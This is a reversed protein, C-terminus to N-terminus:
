GALKAKWEPEEGYGYARMLTGCHAELCRARETDWDQWLPASGHSANRREGRRAPDFNVRYRRNEHCAAFQLLDQLHAPDSATFVDEFRWIRMNESAAAADTIRQNIMWWDWCHKEFRSARDWRAALDSQGFDAPSLRRQGFLGTLDRGDHQGGHNLWSTVWDRPDRVLGIIKCRPYVDAVVDALGYWQSYSEVILSGPADRYYTDRHRRIAAAAAPRGIQGTQWRRAINRIGTRGAIRGLVMHYLGFTRIARWLRAPNTPDALDPEHVSFTDEIVETLLDGFYQTGTRGGSVIFVIDKTM